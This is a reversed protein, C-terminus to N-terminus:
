PCLLLYCRWKEGKRNNGWWFQKRWPGGLYPCATRDQRHRIQAPLQKPKQTKVQGSEEDQLDWRAGSSRTLCICHHVSQDLGIPAARWSNSSIASHGPHVGPLKRPTGFNARHAPLLRQSSQSPKIHLVFWPSLTNYADWSMVVIHQRTITNLQYCRHNQLAKRKCPIIFRLIATCLAGRKCNKPPKTALACHTMPKLQHTLQAFGHGVTCIHAVLFQASSPFFHCTQYSLSEFNIDHGHGISTAIHPSFYNIFTESWKSVLIFISNQSAAVM